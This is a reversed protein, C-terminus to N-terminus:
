KSNANDLERDGIFLVMELQSADAHATEILEPSSLYEALFVPKGEAVLRNLFSLSARIEGNRNRSEDGDLGYLLDEKALGSIVQRYGTDSLLEEGNQPVVLFQPNQARGYRAIDQVFAIMAARRGPANMERDNREYADVRDLYVGDFGAALIKDLYSEPTGLIIKQWEPDWFRIDYNGEWDPNEGLLWSPPTRSWDQGWYFRYDEAEGISLYALVIRQGGDSKVKLAAIDARSFARGGSGDRSYDIVAMDYPSAALVDPRAGQLQYVWSGVSSLAPNAAPASMSGLALPLSTLVAALSAKPTAM